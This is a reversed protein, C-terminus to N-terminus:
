VRRFDVYIFIRKDLDQIERLEPLATFISLCPGVGAEIDRVEPVAMADNFAMYQFTSTDLMGPAFQLIKSQELEPFIEASLVDVEILVRSSLLLAIFSAMSEIDKFTTWEAFASRFAGSLYETNGTKHL